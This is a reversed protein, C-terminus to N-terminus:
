FVAEQSFLFNLQFITHLQFSFFFRCSVLDSYKYASQIDIPQTGESFVGDNEENKSKFTTHIQFGNEDYKQEYARKKRHAKKASKSEIIWSHNELDSNTEKHSSSSHSIEFILESESLSLKEDELTNEACFKSFNINDPSQDCKQEQGSISTKLGNLKNSKQELTSTHQPQTKKQVKVEFTVEEASFKTVQLNVDVPTEKQLPLFMM